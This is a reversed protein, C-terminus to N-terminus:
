GFGSGGNDKDKQEALLEESLLAVGLAAALGMTGMMSKAPAVDFPMTYGKAMNEEPDGKSLINGRSEPIWMPSKLRALDDPLLGLDRINRGDLNWEPDRLLRDKMGLGKESADHMLAVEMDPYKSLYEQCARFARLPYKEASVVLTKNELHFRNLLLMDAMDNREVILIRDPAYQFMEEDFEASKLNEFAKGDVMKEIPHISNYNGIKNRVTDISVTRMFKVVVIWGGIIILTILCGKPFSPSFPIDMSLFPTVLLVGAILISLALYSIVTMTGLKTVRRYVQALLQNYTFYYEGEGSVRDILRRFAVDTLKPSQKPNLAFRYGCSGCTM